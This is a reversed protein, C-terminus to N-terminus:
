GNLITRAAWFILHQRTTYLAVPIRITWVEGVAKAFDIFFSRKRRCMYENQDQPQRDM